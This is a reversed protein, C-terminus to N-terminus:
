LIRVEDKLDSHVIHMKNHLFDIANLLQVIIESQIEYSILPNKWSRFYRCDYLGGQSQLFSYLTQSSSGEVPIAIKYNMACGSATELHRNKIELIGCSNQCNKQSNKGYYNWDFGAAETALIWYSSSLDPGKIYWSDFYQVIPSNVALKNYKDKSIHQSIDKLICIELPIPADTSIDRMDKDTDTAFRNPSIYSHKMIKLAIKKSGLALNRKETQNYEIQLEVVVGYSGFGLLKGRLDVSKISKGPNLGRNSGAKPLADYLIAICEKLKDDAIYHPFKNLKLDTQNGENEEDEFGQREIEFNRRYQCEDTFRHIAVRVEKQMPQVLFNIYRSIINFM